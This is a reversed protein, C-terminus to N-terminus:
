LTSPPPNCCTAPLSRRANGLARAYGLYRRELTAARATGAHPAADPEPRDGEARGSIRIPAAGDAAPADAAPIGPLAPDAALVDLASVSPARTASAAVVPVSTRAAAGFLLPLLLPALMSRLTVPLEM